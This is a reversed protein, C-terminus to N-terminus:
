KIKVTIGHKRNLDIMEEDSLVGRTGCPPAGIDRFFRELGPPAIVWIIQTPAAGVNEVGHWVGEPIYITSGPEVPM